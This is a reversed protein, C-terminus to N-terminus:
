TWVPRTWGRRLSWMGLTEGFSWLTGEGGKLARRRWRLCSVPAYGEFGLPRRPAHRTERSGEPAGLSRAVKEGSRPTRAEGGEGKCSDGRCSPPPPPPPPPEPRPLGRLRGGPRAPDGGNGAPRAADAHRRGRTGPRSPRAPSPLPSPPPGPRRPSSATRAEGALPLGNRHTRAPRGARPWRAGGRGGRSLAPLAARRRAARGQGRSVRPRRGSAARRGSAPGPRSRGPVAAPLSSARRRRPHEARPLRCTTRAGRGGGARGGRHTALAPREGRAEGAAGGPDPRGPSRVEQARSRARRSGGPPQRGTRRGGRARAPRSTGRQGERARPDDPTPPRPGPLPGGTPDDQGGGPAGQGLELLPGEGGM